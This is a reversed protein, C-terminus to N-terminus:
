AVRDPPAAGAFVARLNRLVQLGMAVRTEQTASGLHPALVVSELGLLAPHVRPEAEFVDLGAAALHGAALAEALAAEDVVEGRATNVLIAGRKMRALRARDILHRNESGGPCHLSVADAEALVDEVSGVMEAGCAAALAPDVASRNQAIVRMGFGFHARRAVAQGIRGFGIIGLTAGSVRTGVLQTPAWGPWRGARVLREGEGLRRAAALLLAMAMDATCETLVGPTNTVVVGAARAAALDIHSVGVGYNALVRATAGDLVDADIRDTVTCAVADHSRLAARMAEASLPTDHRNRTVCFHDALAAEVAAPWARTLLLTPVAGQSM